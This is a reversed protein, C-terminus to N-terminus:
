RGCGCGNLCNLPNFLTKPTTATGVTVDAINVPYFTCNTYGVIQCDAAQRREAELAIADYMMKQEYPKIAENIAIKTKLDDIEKQLVMNQNSYGQYLAFADANHKALVADISDRTFKYNQFMESHYEKMDAMRDECTVGCGQRNNNAGNFLGGLIGNPNNLLGLATGAIGLGLASGAVGKSAYDDNDEKYVYKKETVTKAWDSNPNMMTTENAM